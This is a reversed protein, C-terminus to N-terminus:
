VQRVNRYRCDLGLRDIRKVHLPSAHLWRDHMKLPVCHRYLHLIGVLANSSHGSRCVEARM